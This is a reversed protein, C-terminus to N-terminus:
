GLEIAHYIVGSQLLRHLLRSALLMEAQTEPLARLMASSGRFRLRDALAEIEAPEITFIESIVRRANAYACQRGDCPVLARGIRRRGPAKAVLIRGRRRVGGSRLLNAITALLHVALILLHNMSM